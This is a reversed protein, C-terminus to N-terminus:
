REEQDMCDLIADKLETIGLSRNAITKVISAQLASSMKGMDIKIGNAEALDTMNLAVILKAGLELIQVALYLNRELNTSDLVAVVVDPNEKIIFDRAIIEEISFASLSYTGPLDVVTVQKGKHEFAGEKKEVTKGPWNGVHQHSKTLENFISTKGCNPNGALAVTFKNM